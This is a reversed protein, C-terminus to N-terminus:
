GMIKTNTNSGILALVNYTILFNRQFSFLKGEAEQTRHNFTHAVEGMGWITNKKLGSPIDDDLLGVNWIQNNGGTALGCAKM